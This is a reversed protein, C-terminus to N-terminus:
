LSTFPVKKKFVFFVLTVEDMKMRSINCSQLHKELDLNKMTEDKLQASLEEVKMMAASHSVKLAQQSQFVGHHHHLPCSM